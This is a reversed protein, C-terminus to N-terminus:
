EGRRAHRVAVDELAHAVLACPARARLREDHARAGPGDPPDLRAVVARLQALQRAVRAASRRSAARSARRSRLASRVAEPISGAGRGDEPRGWAEPPGRTM